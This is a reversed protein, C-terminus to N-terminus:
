GVQNQWQQTLGPDIYVLSYMQDEDQETDVQQFGLAPKQEGENNYSYLLDVPGDLTNEAHKVKEDIQGQETTLPTSAALNPHSSVFKQITSLSYRTRQYSNPM